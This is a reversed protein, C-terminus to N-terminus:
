NRRPGAFSLVRRRAFVCAGPECECPGSPAEWRGSYVEAVVGEHEAGGGCARLARRVYALAVRRPYGLAHLRAAFNLFPFHRGGPPAGERLFSVLCPADKLRAGEPVSPGRPGREAEDEAREVAALIAAEIREQLAEPVDWVPLARPFRLPADTPARKPWEALPPATTKRFGAGGACGFERVMSGAKHASWSVKLKDYVGPSDPGAWRAKGRPVDAADLIANAVVWRAERWVDVNLRRADEFADESIRIDGLYVHTHAGKGGSWATVHPVGLVDLAGALAEQAAVVRAWPKADIDFVVENLAISRTWLEVDEPVDTVPVWRTATQLAVERLPQVLVPRRPQFAQVRAVLRRQYRAVARNHRPALAAM